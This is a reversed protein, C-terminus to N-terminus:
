FPLNMSEYFRDQWHMMFKLQKMSEVFLYMRVINDEHKPMEFNEDQNKVEDIFERVVDEFKQLRRKNRIYEDGSISEYNMADSFKNQWDLMFKTPMDHNKVESLFDRIANEFDALSENQRECLSKFDSHYRSNYCSPFINM